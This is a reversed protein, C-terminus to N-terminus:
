EVDDHGVVEKVKGFTTALTDREQALRINRDRFSEHVVGVTFAGGEETAFERLSEPVEDKTKFTIKPM